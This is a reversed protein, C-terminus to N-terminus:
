IRNFYQQDLTGLRLSFEAFQYKTLVMQLWFSFHTQNPTSCISSIMVGGWLSVLVCLLKLLREWSFTAFKCVAPLQSKM